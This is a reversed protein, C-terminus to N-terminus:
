EQRKLYERAKRAMEAYRRLEIVAMEYDRLRVQEYASATKEMRQILITLVDVPSLPRPM